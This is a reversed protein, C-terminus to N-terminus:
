SVRGAERFWAVEDALTHALPRFSAGLETRAKSASVTNRAHMTSVGEVTMATSKGSLRAWLEFTAAVGLVLPYPLKKPPKRGSLAALERMVDVLSAYEGSLIYREGARGQEAARLMGDAVDRADTAPAGGEFVGPLKGQLFDLVLQGSGTPAADYPGFMWGPLVEVVEMPRLEPALAQLRESAVVKSRAYLNSQALRDPPTSEDGPGGDKARGIVSSSGTHVFRRVGARSAVRALQLSAHVNLRELAPWHDGPGFYERFYAATHFVVDCGGLAPAFADVDELDGAVVEAGTDGLLRRAKEPSRALARVEHGRERLLRVLNVGLLGTSGTVFAKM